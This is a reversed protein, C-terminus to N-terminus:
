AAAHPAAAGPRAADAAVSRSVAVDTLLALARGADPVGRNAREPSMTPPRVCSGLIAAELEYSSADPRAQLLLAALGAVHPAAMSTGDSEYYRNGPACSLVSVGPAVLDPVIPDAERAFRQSGSFDAVRDERDCAGVSLVNAYNGPSRSAGAYENGVAIVPLINNARLANTVAQFAPTYGRLGLSLSIIRVKESVLWELGALVRDIVQGGEIVLGSVIGAQPAVGIAGRAGGRGAITGATHTGHWHSDRAPAGPVREGMLDFEAFAQLAGELAPHAADIGTDLHGVAVDRGTYGAAWLAEVGLRRIGWTAGTRPEAALRAVPRILSLEPARVVQAVRDDLHLAQAGDRDVYGLVLGLRPYEHYCDPISAGATAAAAPAAAAAAADPAAAGAAARGGSAASRQAAAWLEGIQAGPPATFYEHLAREPTAARGTLAVPMALVVIVKVYGLADLDDILDQYPM